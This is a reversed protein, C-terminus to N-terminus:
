AQAVSNRTKLDQMVLVKLNGRPTPSGILSLVNMAVRDFRKPINTLGMEANPQLPFRPLHAAACYGCTQIIHRIDNDKRPWLFRREIRAKVRQDGKHGSIGPGHYNAM